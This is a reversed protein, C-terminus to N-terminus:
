EVVFKESIFYGYICRAVQPWVFFPFVLVLFIIKTLVFYKLGTYLHPIRKLIEFYLLTAVKLTDSFFVKITFDLLAVAIFKQNPSYLSLYM